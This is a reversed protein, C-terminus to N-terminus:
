QNHPIEVKVSVTAYNGSADTAKYTITYIRGSGTGSREARLNFTFDNIIVIDDVTNGDGNANDAENSTISVLTIKPSPDCIDYATVNTKVEVYKHNPPWLTCPTATANIEPPTTDVVTITVNGSGTNGAQDTANLTVTHTGLNFTHALTTNTANVETKLVTDKEIWTFNFRTSVADTATGNLMVETGAHSEQEVTVDPGANVVPPITDQVIINATDTANTLGDSVTLTVTTNGPPFLVTPTAGQASGGTWNWHYTLTDNDPDSSGTGNLTVNAGQPTTQEAFQDSGADALPPLNQLVSITATASETKNLVSDFKVTLTANYVGAVTYTHTTNLLAPDSGSVPTSNDGFDWTVQIVASVNETTTGNFRTIQDTYIQQNPGASLSAQTRIALLSMVAVIILLTVMLFVKRKMNPSEQEDM